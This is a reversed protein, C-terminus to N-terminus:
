INFSRNAFKLENSLDVGLQYIDGAYAQGLSFKIEILDRFEGHIGIPLWFAWITLSPSM